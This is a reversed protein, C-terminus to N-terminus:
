TAYATTKQNLTGSGTGGYLIRDNSFFGTTAKREKRVMATREKRMYMYILADSIRDFNGKLPNFKEMERLFAIDYIEQVNIIISGNERVGRPDVHWDELYLLGLKKREATMNMLYSNGASKSAIENNHLMEPEKDLRHLLNHTKAWSFVGQGGGAIEGQASCNYLECALFLQEYM